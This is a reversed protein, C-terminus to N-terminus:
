VMNKYLNPQTNRELDIQVIAGGLPQYYYRTKIYEKPNTRDLARQVATHAAIERVVKDTDLILDGSPNLKYFEMAYKGHGIGHSIAELLFDEANEMVVINHEKPIGYTFEVEGTFGEDDMVESFRPERKRIERFFEKYEGIPLVTLKINNPVDEHTIKRYLNTLNQM